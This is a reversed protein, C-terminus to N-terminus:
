FGEETRLMKEDIGITAHEKLKALWGKFAENERESVLISRIKEKSQNLTFRRRRKSQVYVLIHYGDQSHVVDSISHRKSLAFLATELEPPLESRQVFGLDGDNVKDPSISHRRILDKVNAGRILLKRLADAESGTALTLNRARISRGEVFQRRHKSYYDNIERKTVTIKATVEQLILKKQLLMFRLKDKWQKKSLNVATLRSDFNANKYPSLAEEASTELETKSVQIGKRTAEQRILEEAILQDIVMKKITQRNEEGPQILDDYQKIYAQFREQFVSLPIKENNLVAITENEPVLAIHRKTDQDCSVLLGCALGILLFAKFLPYRNM